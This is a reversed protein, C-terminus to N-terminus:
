TMDNKPNKKNKKENFKLIEEVINVIEYPKEIKIKDESM